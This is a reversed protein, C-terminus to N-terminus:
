SRALISPQHSTPRPSPPARRRRRSAPPTREKSEARRQVIEDFKILDVMEIIKKELGKIYLRANTPNIDLSKGLLKLLPLSDCESTLALAQVEQLLTTLVQSTKEYAEQLNVNAARREELTVKLTEISDQQKFLKAQHKAHEDQINIQLMKVNDSLHKLETNVENIYNFLAYNEEERRTFEQILKDVDDEGAYERIADLINIYNNYARIEQEQQELRKAEAKADAATLRVTGKTRLFEELKMSHDLQRQLERVELCHKRYDLAAKEKLADLKSCWEERQDYTTIAQEVLELIQGKGEMLRKIQAKWMTNFFQRDRLLRDIELRMAYNDSNVTNFKKMATNLRNELQSIITQNTLAGAYDKEFGIGKARLAKIEKQVQKLLFNLENITARHEKVDTSCTEHEKLLTILKQRTKANDLLNSTSKTLRLETMINDLEASLSRIINTQVRLTPQVCSTVNARDIEMVRFQRQLKSLEDEAIKEMEMDDNTSAM